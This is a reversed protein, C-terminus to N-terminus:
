STASRQLAAGFQWRVTGSLAIARNILPGGLDGAQAVAAVAPRGPDRLCGAIQRRGTAVRHGIGSCQDPRFADKHGVGCSIGTKM